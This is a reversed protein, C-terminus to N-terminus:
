SVSKNIFITPTIGPWGRESLDHLTIVTSCNKFIDVNELDFILSLEIKTEQRKRDEM